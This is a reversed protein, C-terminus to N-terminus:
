GRVFDRRQRRVETKDFLRLRDGARVRHRRLRAISRDKQLESQTRYRADQSTTGRPRMCPASKRSCRTSWAVIKCILRRQGSNVRLLGRPLNGSHPVAEM